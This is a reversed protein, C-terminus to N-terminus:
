KVEKIKIGNIGELIYKSAPRDVKAAEDGSVWSLLGGRPNYKQVENCVSVCQVCQTYTFKARKMTRTCLVLKTARNISIIYSADEVLKLRPM